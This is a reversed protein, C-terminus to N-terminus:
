SNVRQKFEASPKFVPATHEPVTIKTGKVVNRATRQSRKKPYFTGFNRLSVKEGKEMERIIKDLLDDIITNAEPITVNYRASLYYALDSKRM